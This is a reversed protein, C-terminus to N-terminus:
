KEITVKFTEINPNALHKDAFSEMDRRIRVEDGELVFEYHRGKLLGTVSFGIQNLAKLIAESEPHRVNSRPTVIIKVTM